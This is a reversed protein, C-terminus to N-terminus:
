SDPSSSKQIIWTPRYGIVLTRISAFSSKLCVPFSARHPCFCLPADCLWLSLCVQTGQFSPTSAATPTKLAASMPVGSGPRWFQSLLSVYM